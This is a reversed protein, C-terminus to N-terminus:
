DQRFDPPPRGWDADSIEKIIVEPDGPFSRFREAMWTGLGVKHQRKAKLPHQDVIELAELLEANLSRGNSAARAKFSAKLRPPVNRILIQQPEM